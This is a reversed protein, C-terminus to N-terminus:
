LLTCLYLLIAQKTYYRSYTDFVYVSGSLQMVAARACWRSTISFIPTSFKRERVVLLGVTGFFLKDSAVLIGTTYYLVDYFM